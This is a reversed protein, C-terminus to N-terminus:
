HLKKRAASQVEEYTHGPAVVFVRVSPDINNVREEILGRSELAEACQRCIVVFADGTHLAVADKLSVTDAHM